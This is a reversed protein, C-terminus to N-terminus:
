YPVASPYERFLAKTDTKPPVLLRDDRYWVQKPLEQRQYAQLVQEAERYATNGLWMLGPLVQQQLNVAQEYHGLAAAVRAQLEVHPPIFAERVLENALIRAQELDRVRPDESLLLLRIRTYRLIQQQPHAAILRDLRDRIEADDVGSQKMALLEYLRAPPIDPQISLAARYHEAAQAFDGTQYRRNALCYHAGYHTPDQQLVQRYGKEAAPIEGREELLIASLFRALIQEPSRQLVRELQRGAQESQGSLLLARAYSVRANDNDPEIELGQAFAQAASSFDQRRSARLGETFFRRAGQDLGELEQILPDDVSPLRKGQLALQQRAQDNRGQARLARALPYHVRDAQPDLRLVEELREIAQSYRRQLLDIQALLYLAMARLGPTQAAAQLDSAASELRDLELRSEGLRLALPAYDPELQRAKLYFEVAVAHRGNRSALYGAYYLWRLKDPDLQISNAYCIQAAAPLHYVQYLAGLRGYAEALEDAVTSPDQLQQVVEARQQEIVQRAYPEAGSLDTEALSQLRPQWAAPLESLADGLCALPMAVLLLM